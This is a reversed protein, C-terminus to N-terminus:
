TTAPSPLDPVNADSACLRPLTHAVFEASVWALWVAGALHGHRHRYFQDLLATLRRADILADLPAPLTSCAERVRAECAPHWLWDRQPSFFGRKDRRLRLSEPLRGRALERLLRKSQGEGLLSGADLTQVLRLLRPDLYPARSEVGVAMSNRDDHRLIHPLSYRAIGDCVYRDFVDWDGASGACLDPLRPDFRPPAQLLLRQGEPSLQLPGQRRQAYIAQHLGAPLAHYATAALQRLLGADAARQRARLIRLLLSLRGHRLLAALLAHQHGPYGVFVEDGGQGSLLVKIGAQHAATVLAFHAVISTDAFPAEQHYLVTDLDRLLDDPGPSVVRLDSFALHAQVQRAWGTEDGDRVAQPFQCSFLPYPLAPFGREPQRRAECVMATLLSSDLGGSLSGALPVDSRLRLRVVDRLLEDAEAILAQGEAGDLSRRRQSPQLWFYRQVDVVGDPHLTLHSGPPLERVECFLTQGPHHDIDHTALFECLQVEDLRPTALGSALLAKSESAFALRLGSAMSLRPLVYCLPKEGFPDRCLHLTHAHADWVAFAFMGNLRSLCAPGLRAWAQLLVATDSRAQSSPLGLESALEIFNYIAGNFVLTLRGDPTSMPQQAEPGPALIALRRHGLYVQAPASAATAEWAGEGDPGRHRLRWLLQALQRRLAPQQERPLPATVIGAIGCM